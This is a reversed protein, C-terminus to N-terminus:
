RAALQQLMGPDVEMCRGDSTRPWLPPRTRAQLMVEVFLEVAVAVAEMVVESGLTRLTEIYARKQASTVLPEEPWLPAPVEFADLWPRGEMWEDLQVTIELPIERLEDQHVRLRMWTRWPLISKGWPSAFLEILKSLVPKCSAPNTWIADNSPLRSPPPPFVPSALLMAYWGELAQEFAQAVPDAPEVPLDAM